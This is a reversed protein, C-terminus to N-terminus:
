EDATAGTAGTAQFGVLKSKIVQCNCTGVTFYETVVHVKGVGGVAWTLKMELILSSGDDGLRVSKRKNGDRM